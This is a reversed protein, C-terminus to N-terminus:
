NNPAWITLGRRNASSALTNREIFDSASSHGDGLTIATHGYRRGATTGTQQWTLVLGPTRLADQLSMNVRHFGAREMQPNLQNAHGNMYPVGTARSIATKVGRACLSQSRYGGMNLATRRAEDALRQQTPTGQGVPPTETRGVRSPSRHDEFADRNRDAQLRSTTQNGVRGDVQIGQAQQFQRVANQTRQGFIGDAGGPNYGAASLQRQLNRVEDGRSGIALTM